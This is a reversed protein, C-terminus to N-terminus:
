PTTPKDRTTKELARRSLVHLAVTFNGLIVLVVLAFSAIVTAAPRGLFKALFAFVGVAVVGVIMGFIFGTLYLPWIRGVVQLRNKCKPCRIRTPTPAWLITWLGLSNNCIPCQINKNM